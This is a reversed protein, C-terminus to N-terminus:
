PIRIRVMPLRRKGVCCVDVTRGIELTTEQEHTVSSVNTSCTSRRNTDPRDGRLDSNLRPDNPALSNFFKGQHINKGSYKVRRTVM